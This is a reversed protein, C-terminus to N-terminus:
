LVKVNKNMGGSRIFKCGNSGIVLQIDKYELGLLIISNYIRVPHNTIGIIRFNTKDFVLRSPNNVLTNKFKFLQFIDSYHSYIYGDNVVKVIDGIEFQRM